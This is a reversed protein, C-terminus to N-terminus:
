GGQLLRQTNANVQPQQPAGPAPGGGRGMLAGGAGSAVRGEAQAVLDGPPVGGMAETEGSENVNKVAQQMAPSAAGATEPSPSAPSSNAVLAMGLRKGLEQIVMPGSWLQNELRERRQQRVDEDPDQINLINERVYNRSTLSEGDAGPTVLQLAAQVAPLLDIPRPDRVKASLMPMPNLAKPDICVYEAHSKGNKGEVINQVYVKEGLDRIQELFIQTGNVAGASLCSELQADLHEAATQQIQQHYGTEVGPQRQGYVVPSGVLQSIIKERTEFSWEALQFSPLNQMLSEINEDAWLPIMGGEPIKPAPPLGEDPGRSERSFKVVRTQWATNRIFTNLQSYLDDQDQNLQLVANMVVEMRSNGDKWGGGRGPVYNYLPRGLNHDFSHLLVPQGLHLSKTQTLTPWNRSNTSPGLCYYAYKGKNCYHLIVVKTTLGKDKGLDYGRLSTCDFLPNSLVSRLSREEVEFCEVMTNGEFVPYFRELPVWARMIAIGADHLYADKEKQYEEDTYRGEAELRRQIEDKAEDEDYEEGTEDDKIRYRAPVIDPWKQKPIALYKEVGADYLHVDEVVHSWVADADATGLTYRAVNIAKELEAANKRITNGPSTGKTVPICKIEPEPRYRSTKENFIANLHFTHTAVGKLQMTQPVKIPNNGELHQRLKLILSDRKTYIEIVRQLLASLTPADPLEHGYNM